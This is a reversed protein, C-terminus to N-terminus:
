KSLCFFSILMTPDLLLRLHQTLFTKIRFFISVFDLAKERKPAPHGIVRSLEGVLQCAKDPHGVFVVQRILPDPLIALKTVSSRFILCTTNCQMNSIICHIVQCMEVYISAFM